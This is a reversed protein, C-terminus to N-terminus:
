DTKKAQESGFGGKFMSWRGDELRTVPGAVYGSAGVEVRVVDGISVGDVYRPVSAIRAEDPRVLTAALTESSCPPWGDDVTLALLDGTGPLSSLVGGPM